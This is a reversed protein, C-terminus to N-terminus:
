NVSLCKILDLAERSCSLVHTLQSHADLYQLVRFFLFMEADEANEDESTSPQQLNSWVQYIICYPQIQHAIRDSAVDTRAVCRECDERSWSFVSACPDAAHQEVTRHLPFLDQPLTAQLDHAETSGVFSLLHYAAQQAIRHGYGLLYEVEIRVANWLPQQSTRIVWAFEDYKNPYGNIAEAVCGTAIAHIFPERPVHSISIHVYPDLTLLRLAKAM